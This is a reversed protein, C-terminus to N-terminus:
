CTNRPPHSARWRSVPVAPQQRQRQGRLRGRHEDRLPRQRQGGPDCRPGLHPAAPRGARRLQRQAGQAAPRPRRRRAAPLPDPRPRQRQRGHLGAPRARRLPQSVPQAGRGLGRGGRLRRGVAGPGAHHLPQARLGVRQRQRPGRDAVPRRRRVARRRPHRVPLVAVGEAVPEARRPGVAPRRAQPQRRRARRRRHVAAHQGAARLRRRGGAADVLKRVDRDDGAAQAHERLVGEAALPTAAVLDWVDNLWAQNVADAMAGVGLPAVFAMSRYDAGPSLTGNLQYGAKIAGPDDGTAARFWTTLRQVATRARADGSVLFDTGLRWPDRCANYDYAGDNPGELFDPAVPAPSGLPDAIFDPLLGTGPSYATQLGDFVAYTHDLVQTWLPNGSVAAFARLHDPMFDSSRTSQYFAPEGPTTWDGLRVYSGSADVEGSAIGALVNAAEAAYDIAGCSGWQKDALLLAYAIDLDGDSASDAGQASACSRGQYWAMLSPTLVSPHERFFTFMGDFIARADPDHGAMLAALVMGYGHAESVTLNGSQTRAEVVYRGAGCTQKLFRAKWADYFDRTAQDLAAASLHNPRISGAAYAMPHAGFPHNQAAAGGAFATLAMALVLGARRTGAM